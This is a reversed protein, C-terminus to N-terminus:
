SRRLKAHRKLKRDLHRQVRRMVENASQTADIIKIRGPERSAIELFGRRVRSFFTKPQSELRDPNKGLRSQAAKLDIDFLFTLDPALKGVAVKHMARVMRLDLQRGYGQYATTSDYFRDCLVIEGRGLAPLISTAVLDARAAEYLLLETRPDISLQTDLLITRVQEAVATSGPERLETVIQGANELYDRCLGVQTSKGCGDIGEFTIFLGRHKRRNQEKM